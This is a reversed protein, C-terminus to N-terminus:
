AQKLAAPRTSVPLQGRISEAFDIKEPVFGAPLVISRAREVAALPELGERMFNATGECM